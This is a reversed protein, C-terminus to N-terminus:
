IEEQASAALIPWKLLLLCTKTYKQKFVANQKWKQLPESM